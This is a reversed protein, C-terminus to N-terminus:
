ARNDKNGIDEIVHGATVPTILSQMQPYFLASAAKIKNGFAAIALGLIVPTTLRLM